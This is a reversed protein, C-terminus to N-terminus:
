KVPVLNIQKVRKLMDKIEEDEKPDKSQQKDSLKEHFLVRDGDFGFILKKNEGYRVKAAVIQTKNKGLESEEYNVKYDYYM